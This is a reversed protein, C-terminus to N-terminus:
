NRIFKLAEESKIIPLSRYFKKIFNEFTMKKLEPIKIYQAKKKPKLIGVGCDINAIRFEVNKSKSLEVAVKWVDGTWSAQKRPVREEFSNRPLFDHFLIIGNKKLHNIANLCDRQCQEYEHLGDIFVVDFKLKNKKFFKDSTMRHTGGSVPDVGIKKEMPLPISNFVFNSAVGIELYRCNKNDYNQIAKNIFAIRNYFNKELTIRDKERLFFNICENFVSPYLIPPTIVKLIKKLISIM